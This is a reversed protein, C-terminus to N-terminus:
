ILARDEPAKGEPVPSATGAGESYGDLCGHAAPSLLVPRPPRRAAGEEPCEGKSTVEPQPEKDWGLRWSAVQLTQPCPLTARWSPGRPQWCLTGMGLLAMRRPGVATPPRPPHSALLEGEPGAECVATLLGTPLPRPQPAQGRPHSPVRWSSPQLGYPRLSNSVVSAVSCAHARAPTCCGPSWARGAPCLNAHKFRDTSAGGPGPAGPGRCAWPSAIHHPSPWLGRPGPRSGCLPLSGPPPPATGERCLSSTPPRPGLLLSPLPGPAATLLEGQGAM